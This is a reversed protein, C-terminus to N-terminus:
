FLYHAGLQIQLMAPMDDAGLFADHPELARAPEVTFDGLLHLAYGAQLYIGVVDRVTGTAPATDTAYRLGLGPAVALATYGVDCQGDGDPACAPDDGQFGLVWTVHHVGASVFPQVPGLDLPLLWRATGGLRRHIRGVDGEAAYAERAYEARQPGRGAQAELSLQLRRTWEFVLELGGGYALGVEDTAAGDGRLGGLPSGLAVNVGVGLYWDDLKRVPPAEPAEPPSPAGAAPAPLTAPPAAPAPAPPAAPAPESPAAPPPAPPAEPTAAPAAETTAAPAAETAPAAAPAAAPTEAPPTEQSARGPAAEQAHAVAVGLTAIGIAAWRM